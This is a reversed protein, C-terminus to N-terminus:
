LTGDKQKEEIIKQLTKKCTKCRMQQGDKLHEQIHEVFTSACIATAMQQLIEQLENGTFRITSRWVEEGSIRHAKVEKKVDFIRQLFKTLTM